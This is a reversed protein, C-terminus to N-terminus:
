EGAAESPVRGVMRRVLDQALTWDFPSFMTSSFMAVVVVRGERVFVADTFLDSTVPPFRGSPDETTRATVVRAAATDDGM